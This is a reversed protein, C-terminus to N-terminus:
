ELNLKPSQLTDSLHKVDGFVKTFTELLGVFRLDIQSLLGHADAARQGNHEQAMEELVRMITPLTDRVTKCALYRCAWCTDIIRQLERPAINMDKQTELWRQHVYSGSM